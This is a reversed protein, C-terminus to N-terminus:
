SYKILRDLYWGAKELSEVGGKDRERWLYKVINGKLFGRFEEPSLQAEIAEICEINGQTYHSPHNVLDEEQEDIAWPVPCVGGPCENVDEDIRAFWSPSGVGPAHVRETGSEADDTVGDDGCDARCGVSGGCEPHVGDLGSTSGTGAGSGCTGDGERYLVRQERLGPEGSEHNSAPGDHGRSEFEGTASEGGASLEGASLRTRM